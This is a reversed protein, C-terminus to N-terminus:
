HTKLRDLKTKRQYYVEREKLFESIFSSPDEHKTSLWKEAIGHSTEDAENTAKRLLEGLVQPSFKGQREDQMRKKQDYSDNAIKYENKLVVNEQRSETAEKEKMQLKIVLNSNEATLEDFLGTMTKTIELANVFNTFDEENNLLLKLKNENCLKVESYQSPLTLRSVKDQPIPKQIPTTVFSQSKTVPSQNLGQVMTGGTFSTSHQPQYVPQGVFSSSHTMRKPPSTIFATVIDAFIGALNSHPSWQALKPHQVYNNQGLFQHQGSM